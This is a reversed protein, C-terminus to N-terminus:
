SRMRTRQRWSCKKITLPQEVEILEIRHIARFKNFIGQLLVDRKKQTFAFGQRKTLFLRIRTYAHEGLMDKIEKTQQMLWGRLELPSLNDPTNIGSM